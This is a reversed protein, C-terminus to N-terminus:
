APDAAVGPRARRRVVVVLAGVAALGFAVGAAWAGVTPRGAAGGNDARDLARNLRNVESALYARDRERADFEIRLAELEKERHRLQHRLHAMRGYLRQREDLLVAERATQVISVTGTIPERFGSVTCPDNCVALGYFAGAVDPIPLRATLAFTTGRDHEVDFTGLRIADDPIARGEQPWARGTVLFAYFPGRQLLEQKSGPVTVYTEAVATQGPLYHTRNLDIYAGGDAVAAPAAITLGVSFLGCGAVIWLARPMRPM